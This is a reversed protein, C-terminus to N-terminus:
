KLCGAILSRGFGTLFPALLLVVAMQALAAFVQGIM